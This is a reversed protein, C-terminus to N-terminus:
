QENSSAESQQKVYARLAAARDQDAKALVDFRDAAREIDEATMVALQEHDLEVSEEDTANALRMYDFELVEEFKV